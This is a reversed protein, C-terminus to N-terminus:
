EGDQDPDIPNWELTSENALPPTRPRSDRRRIPQGFLDEATGKHLPDCRPTGREAASPDDPTSPDPGNDTREIPPHLTRAIEELDYDRLLVRRAIADAGIADIAAQLPADRATHLLKQLPGLRAYTPATAAKPPRALLAKITGTSDSVRLGRLAAAIEALDRTPYGSDGYADLPKSVYKACEFAASALSSSCPNAPDREKKRPNKYIEALYVLTEVAPLGASAACTSWDWSTEDQSLYAADLIAHM